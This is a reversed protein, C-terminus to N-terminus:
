AAKADEFRVILFGNGLYGVDELKVGYSAPYYSSVHDIVGVGRRTVVTTGLPLPLEMPNEIAWQKEAETLADGCYVSFSDLVEVLDPTISWGNRDDLRKAIQYGDARRDWHTADLLDAIIM